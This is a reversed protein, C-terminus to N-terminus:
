KAGGSLNEASNVVGNKSWKLRPKRWSSEIGAKPAITKTENFPTNLNM